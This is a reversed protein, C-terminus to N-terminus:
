LMVIRRDKYPQPWQFTEILWILHKLLNPQKDINLEEDFLVGTLYISKFKKQWDVVGVTEDMGTKGNKDVFSIRVRVRKGKGIPDRSYLGLGSFSINAITADVTINEKPVTVSASGFFQYRFWRRSDGTNKKKKKM